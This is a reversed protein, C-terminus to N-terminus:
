YYMKVSKQNIYCLKISKTASAQYGEKIERTTAKHKPKVKLLLMSSCNQFSM